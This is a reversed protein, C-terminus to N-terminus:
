PQRHQPLHELGADSAASMVLAIGIGGLLMGVKDRRVLGSTALVAGAMGVLARRRNGQQPDLVYMLGAGIGIGVLAM